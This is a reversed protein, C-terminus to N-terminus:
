LSSQKDLSPVKLARINIIKGGSGFNKKNKQKKLTVSEILPAKIRRIAQDWVRQSRKENEGGM